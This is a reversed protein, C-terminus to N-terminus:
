ATPEVDPVEVTVRDHITGERDRLHKPERGNEVAVAEAVISTAIGYPSGSGLDLGIPTYVRELEDETFTRGEAEFDELMEEFREHPGMLGVYPVRRSLLEDLALRDDIFNHTMVVAYTDADLGVEDAFDGPSSRVVADAAPFREELDAAGRFGVVTVRFGNQAALEVVPAADNGSGVVVLDAPPVLGDVFVTAEGEATGIEVTDAAGEEVLAGAPRVLAELLWDPFEGSAVEIGSGPRYYARDGTSVGDGSLATLVGVREGAGLAEIAPRYSDDIPEVLIDIIGNCGVGLGWVDDDGEMLDYTELRPQGDELVAAALEFVEDELCGATIHGQGTGGEEVLMKAGPRRYASGEVDVVTALMARRGSELHDRVTEWVATEPVSWDNQM